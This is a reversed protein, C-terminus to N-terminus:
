LQATCASKVNKDACKLSILAHLLEVGSVTQHLLLIEFLATFLSLIRHFAMLTLILFLSYAAKKKDQVFDALSRLPTHFYRNVRRTM